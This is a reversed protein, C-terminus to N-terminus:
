QCVGMLGEWNALQRVPFLILLNKEGNLSAYKSSMYDLGKNINNQVVPVKFLSQIALSTCFGVVGDCIIDKRSEGNYKGIITQAVGCVGAKYVVGLVGGFLGTAGYAAGAATQILVQGIDINDYGKDIGQTIIDISGAAIAGTIIPAAAGGTVIVAAIAVLAVVGFIVSTRITPWGIDGTPDYYMVPNNECYAYLNMGVISYVEVNKYNDANIFRSVLPRYYRSCSCYWGTENDLYYGKYVFNNLEAIDEGITNPTYEKDIIKGWSDYKYAVMVSGNEDVVETIIGLLDRV